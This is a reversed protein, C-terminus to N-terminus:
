GRQGGLCRAVTRTCGCDGSCFILVLVGTAYAGGQREVDARFVLTVALDIVFLVLVLPRSFSVWHPAMGYRPLYRPILNILGAMASAGAFWLILITRFDYISGFGNGLYRHALYAMARGSAPGGDRYAHEPHPRTTVVSSGILLVSMLVAATLLMRQTNRIRATPVADGSDEDGNGKILPM